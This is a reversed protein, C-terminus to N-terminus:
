DAHVVQKYNEFHTKNHYLPWIHTLKLPVLEIAPNKMIEITLYLALIRETLCAKETDYHYTKIWDTLTVYWAMMQEFMESTIVFTHFLPIKIIHSMNFFDKLRYNTNFHQNYKELVSDKYPLCIHFMEDLELSEYINHTQQHFMVPRNNMLRKEIDTITTRELKMDYQLFGIYTSKKHLGNMYIHYLCSTQCYGNKQLSDDFIPLDYEFLINYGKDKSYEKPYKTNVGYMVIKSLSEKDVNEYM